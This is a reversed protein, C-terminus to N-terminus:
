ISRGLIRGYISGLAIHVMFPKEHLSRYVYTRIKGIWYDHLFDDFTMIDCM